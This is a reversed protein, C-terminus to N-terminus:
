KTSRKVSSGPVIGVHTRTGPAAISKEGLTLKWHVRTRHGYLGRTCDCADADTRVKFMGFVPLSIMTQVCSLEVCM